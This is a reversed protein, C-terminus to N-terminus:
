REERILLWAGLCLTMAMIAALPAVTWAGSPVHGLGLRRAVYRALSFWSRRGPALYEVRMRGPLPEGDSTAAVARPSVNGFLGVPIAVPNRTLCITADTARSM